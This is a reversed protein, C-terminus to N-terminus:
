RGAPPDDVSAEFTPWWADPSTLHEAAERYQASLRPWKRLLQAHLTISRQTLARFQQPDRQYWATTRGDASSVLRQGPQVAAV